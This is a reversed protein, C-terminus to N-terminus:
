KQLAAVEQPTFMGWEEDSLNEGKSFKGISKGKRKELGEQRELQAVQIKQQLAAQGIEGYPSAASILAELKKSQPAGELAKDQMVSELSRNAFHTTLGTSLGEGLGLGLMETLRNRPDGTEIVQVM